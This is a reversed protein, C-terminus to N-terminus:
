EFKTEVVQGSPVKQLGKCPLYLLSDDRGNEPCVEVPLAKTLFWFINSKMKTALIYIPLHLGEIHLKLYETKKLSKTGTYGAKGTKASVYRHATPLGTCKAFAIKDTTFVRIAPNCSWLCTRKPNDHGWCAMWFSQLYIVQYPKVTEVLWQMRKTRMLVSSGPQELVWTMCLLCMLLLLLCTRAALGNSRWVSAVMPDGDPMAQSRKSTGCNMHIFSSCETAVLSVLDPDGFLIIAICLRLQM